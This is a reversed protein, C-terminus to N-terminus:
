FFSPLMNGQCLPFQEGVAMGDSVLIGCEASHSNSLGLDLFINVIKFQITVGHVKYTIKLHVGIFCM